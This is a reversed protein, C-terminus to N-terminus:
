WLTLWVQVNGGDLVKATPVGQVGHSKEQQNRLSRWEQVRLHQGPQQLNARFLVAVFLFNMMLYICLTGEYM